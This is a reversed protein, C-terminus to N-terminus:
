GEVRERHRKRYSPFVLGGHLSAGADDRPSRKAGACVKLATELEAKRSPTPTDAALPALIDNAEQYRVAMGTATDGNPHHSPGREIDFSNRRSYRPCSSQLRDGLDPCQPIVSKQPPPPVRVARISAREVPSHFPENRPM